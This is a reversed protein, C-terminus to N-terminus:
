YKSNQYANYLSKVHVAWSTIPEVPLDKTSELYSISAFAKSATMDSFCNLWFYLYADTPDMVHRAADPYQLKVEANVPLYTNTDLFNTIMPKITDLTFYTVNGKADKTKTTLDMVMGGVAVLRIIQVNWLGVTEDYYLFNMLDDTDDFTFTTIAAM